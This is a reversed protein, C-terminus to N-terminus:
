VFNYSFITWPNKDMKYIRNTFAVNNNVYVVCISKEIIIKIDFIKNDPVILPTFNLEDTYSGTSYHSERNLFLAPMSYRNSSTLDFAVSYVQSLDDCAGFSFGFGTSQSADIDYLKTYHISYSTIVPRTPHVPVMWKKVAEDTDGDNVNTWGFLYRDYQDAATKAGYTGKGTFRSYGCPESWPGFM